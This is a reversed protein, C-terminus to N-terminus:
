EKLGKPPIRDDIGVNWVDLFLNLTQDAMDSTRWLYQVDASNMWKREPKHNDVALRLYDRPHNNGM